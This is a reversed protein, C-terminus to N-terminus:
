IKNEIKEKAKENAQSVLKLYEQRNDIIGYKYAERLEDMKEFIEPKRFDRITANEYVKVMDSGEMTDLDIVGAEHLDILDRLGGFINSAFGLGEIRKAKELTKSNEEHSIGYRGLFPFREIVWQYKNKLINIIQAEEGSIEGSAKEYEGWKKHGEKGIGLTAAEAQLKRAEKNKKLNDGVQDRDNFGGLLLVDEKDVLRFEKKTITQLYSGNKFDSPNEQAEVYRDIEGETMDGYGVLRKMPGYRGVITRNYFGAMEKPFKRRMESVIEQKKNELGELVAELTKEGEKKEIKGDKESRLEEIKGKLEGLDEDEDEFRINISALGSLSKKIKDELGEEEKQSNADDKKQEFSM